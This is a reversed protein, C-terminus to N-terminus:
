HSPFAFASVSVFVLLSYSFAFYVFCSALMSVIGPGCSLPAGPLQSSILSANSYLCLDCFFQAALELQSDRTRASFSCILDFTSAVLLVLQTSLILALSLSPCLRRRRRFRHSRKVGAPYKHDHIKKNHERSQPSKAKSRTRAMAMARDRARPRARLRGPMGQGTSAGDGAANAARTPSKNFHAAVRFSFPAWLVATQPM